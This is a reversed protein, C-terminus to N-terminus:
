ELWIQNMNEPNKKELFNPFYEGIKMQIKITKLSKVNFSM